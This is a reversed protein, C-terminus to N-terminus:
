HVYQRVRRTGTYRSYTAARWAMRLVMDKKIKGNMTRVRCSKVSKILGSTTGLILVGTGTPILERVSSEEWFKQTFAWYFQNCFPIYDTKSNTKFDAMCSKVEVIVIHGKRNVAVVDAKHKGWTTLGLEHYVGFLKHTFYSTVAKTVAQTIVGRSTM